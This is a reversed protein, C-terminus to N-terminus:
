GLSRETVPKGIMKATRLMETVSGLDSPSVDGPPIRRNTLKELQLLVDILAFSDVLGSSVLQTDELIEVSPDQLVKVRIFEIMEEAIAKNDM